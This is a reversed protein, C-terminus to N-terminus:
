VLALWTVFTLNYERAIFKLLFNVHVVRAMWFILDFTSSPGIGEAIPEFRLRRGLFLAVEGDEMQDVDSLKHATSRVGRRGGSPM